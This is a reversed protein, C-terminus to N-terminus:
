YQYANDWLHDLLHKADEIPAARWRGAPDKGILAAERGDRAPGTLRALNKLPGDIDFNVEAGFVERMWAEVRADLEESTQGEGPGTLLHYLVLVMEKGEEEEASDILRYFVSQNTALNRFFLQESVDKLFAIRKKRYNNWQKFALGGLALIVGLLATLVPMIRTVSEDTVGLKIAWAPGATFFLIVGAIIMLQPIAKLLVGVSGGLAPVAFLLKDKITMGVEVNPFLLELDYKPVDKYFYAYIKGPQFLPSQERKKKRKKECLNEFYARDKYKLLLVVRQLIDIPIEKKKLGRRVSTSKFIDGRAYCIVCDFDDLDVTTRLQILTAAEFCKRIGEEGIEFYNARDAIARFLREVKEEHDRLSDDSIDADGALTDRDPDFPAYHQKVEEIYRHCEFHLHACLIECLEAFHRSREPSLGGDGVCKAIVDRRLFPIFAEPVTESSSVQDFQSVPM